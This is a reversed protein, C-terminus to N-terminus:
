AYDRGIQPEDDEVCVEPRDRWNITKKVPVLVHTGADLKALTAQEEPTPTTM